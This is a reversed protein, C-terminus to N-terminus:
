EAPQSMNREAERREREDKRGNRDLISRIWKRSYGYTQGIKRISDGDDFAQVVAANRMELLANVESPIEIRLGGMTKVLKRAPTLGMALALPHEEHVTEPNAPVSIQRGSYTRVLNIAPQYGCAAMIDALLKNRM